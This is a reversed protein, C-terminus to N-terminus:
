LIKYTLKEKQQGYRKLGLVNLVAISIFLMPMGLSNNLYPNFASQIFVFLSSLMFPLALDHNGNKSARLYKNIIIGFLCLWFLLGLCGQKHFIELYVIEMHVPKAPVGIGLGHGIFFSLLNVQNIVQNITEVRVSDAREARGMENAVDLFVHILLSAILCFVILLVSTRIDRKFNFILYIIIVSFLSLLFGRSFTLFVAALILMSFLKSYKSKCFFYFYFGICLYLFGSYVFYNDHAAFDPTKDANTIWWYYESDIVGFWLLLLIILYLSALIFASAKITKITIDVSKIDKIMLSFYIIMFFSLLQKIDIIILSIEANNLVAILLALLHIAIFSLLLFFINKDIKYNSLLLITSYFLAISFLIMRLTLSGIEFMRSSGMLFVELM